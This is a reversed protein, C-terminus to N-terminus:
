RKSAVIANNMNIIGSSKVKESLSAKKKVTNLIRQKMVKADYESVERSQILAVIRTVLATAYSTGEVVTQGGNALAISICDGPAVLDVYDKGYNSEEIINYDSDCAAVTILNDEDYCAPYCKNESNLEEGANGAAVIFLMNSQRIVKELEKNDEYTAISLNCIDAGNEEAYQIAEIISDTTGKGEEDLVTIPMIQLGYEDIAHLMMTGHSCLESTQIENSNEAFNWGCIDDIYGNKDDDIGNGSIEETNVWLNGEEIESLDYKTDIIAVVTNYKVPVDDQYYGVMELAQDM